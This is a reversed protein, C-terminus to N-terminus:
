NKREKFTYCASSNSMIYYHTTGEKSAFASVKEGNDLFHSLHTEGNPIKRPGKEPRVLLWRPSGVTKRKKSVLAPIEECCPVEPKRKTLGFDLNLFFSAVMKTHSHSIHDVKPMSDLLSGLIAISLNQCALSKAALWDCGEDGIRRLVGPM